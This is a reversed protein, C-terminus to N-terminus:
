YSRRRRKKLKELIRRHKACSICYGVKQTLRLNVDEPTGLETSYGYRKKEEIFKSRPVRRGCSSCVEMAEKGRGM